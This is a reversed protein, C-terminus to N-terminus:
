CVQVIALGTSSVAMVEHIGELAVLEQRVIERRGHNDRLARAFAHALDDAVRAVRAADFFLQLADVSMAMAFPRQLRSIIYGGQVEFANDGRLRELVLQAVLPPAPQAMLADDLLQAWNPHGCRRLEMILQNIAIVLLGRPSGQLQEPPRNNFWRATLAAGPAFYTYALVQAQLAIAWGNVSQVKHDLFSKPKSGIGASSVGKSELLMTSYLDPNIALYDPGFHGPWQVGCVPAIGLMACRAEIQPLSGHFGFGLFSAVSLCVALAVTQTVIGKWHVPVDMFEPAVILAGGNMRTTSQMWGHAAEPTFFWRSDVMMKM